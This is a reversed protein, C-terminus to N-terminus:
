RILHIVGTHTDSNDSSENTNVIYYYVGEPSKGGDWPRDAYNNDVQYIIQGWRNFISVSAEPYTEIGIIVFTENKGDGNATFVNPAKIKQKIVVRLQDSNSCKGNVADLSITYFGGTTLPTNLASKLDTKDVIIDSNAPNTTNLISWAYIGESVFGNLKQVEEEFMTIDSGADVAPVKDVKLELEQTFVPACTGGDSETMSYIGAVKVNKLTKTIQGPIIVGDLYWQYAPSPNTTQLGTTNIDIFSTECITTDTVSVDLLPTPAAKV